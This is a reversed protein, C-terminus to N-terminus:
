MEVVFDDELVAGLHVDKARFEPVDLEVVVIESADVILIELLLLLLVLLPGVSASSGSKLVVYDGEVLFGSGNGEM